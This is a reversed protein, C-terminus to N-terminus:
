APFFDPFSRLATAIVPRPVGVISGTKTYPDESLAQARELQGILGLPNSKYMGVSESVEVQREEESIFLYALFRSPSVCAQASVM